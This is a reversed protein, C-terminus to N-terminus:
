CALSKVRITEKTHFRLSFDGVESSFLIVSLLLDNRTPPAAEAAAEMEM